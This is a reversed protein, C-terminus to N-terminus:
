FLHTTAWDSRVCNDFAPNLGSGLLGAFDSFTVGSPLGGGGLATNALGLIASVTLGDLSTGTNILYYGGIAPTAIPFLGAAGFDKNIQLATVQSGFNGSGTNGFDPPNVYNNNLPGAGSGQGGPKASSVSNPATFRAYHLADNTDPNDTDSFDLGVSLFNPSSYLSTFYKFLLSAPNLNTSTALNGFWGGQTVTCAVRNSTNTITCVVNDGPLLTVSTSTGSVTPLGTLATGTVDTGTCTITSLYHTLDTTITNSNVTFSGGTEGVTHQTGTTYAATVYQSGTTGGNGVNAGTGATSGDIQLNFKGLDNSPSLVKRVELNAFTNDIVFLKESDGAVVEFNGCKATGSFTAVITDPINDANTDVLVNQTFSKTYQFMDGGNLTFTATIGSPIGTGIAPIFPPNILSPPQTVDFGANPVALGMECLAFKGPSGRPEFVPPIAATGLIGGSPNLLQLGTPFDGAFGIPTTDTLNTVNYLNFTWTLTGAPCVYAPQAGETFPDNDAVWHCAPQEVGNVKKKIPMFAKKAGNTFTCTVLDGANLVLGDVAVPSPFLFSALTSNFTLDDGATANGNLDIPNTTTNNGSGTTRDCHLTSVYAGINNPIGPAFPPSPYDPGTAMTEAVAYTGPDVELPGTTPFTGTLCPGPIEPFGDDNVGNSDIGCPNSLSYPNGNGIAADSPGGVLNSVTLPNAPDTTIGSGYYFDFTGPADPIVSNIPNNFENLMYKKILLSAKQTSTNTFTCVIATGTFTITVSGKSGTVTNGNADQCAIATNRWPSSPATETITYTGNGPTFTVEEGCKLTFPAGGTWTFNFSDTGPPVCVKDVTVGLLVKVQRDRNGQALRTGQNDDLIFSWHYPSGHISGAGDNPNPTWDGDRALHGGWALVVTNGGTNFTVIVTTLSTGNYSGKTIQPTSVATITGNWMSFKYDLNAAGPNTGDYSLVPVNPDIKVTFTSTPTSLLTCKATDRGQLQKSCPDPAGSLPPLFSNWTTMYDTAHKTANTKKTTEWTLTLKFGTGSPMSDMVFRYPVTTGEAYHSNTHNLNGNIWGQGPDVTGGNQWHKLDVSVTAAANSVLLGFIMAAVFAALITMRRINLMM